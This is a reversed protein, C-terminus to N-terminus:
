FRFEAGVSLMSVADTDEVDFWEWEGRILLKETARYTGGFGLALDTGDDSTTLGDVNLDADWAVLGLKGFLDLKDSVAGGGVFFADLGSADFEVNVGLVDDDISGFDVYGGEVGFNQSFMYRGFAKWGLGSADFSLGQEEIEITALGFAGGASFKSEEEAIANTALLLTALGATMMRM